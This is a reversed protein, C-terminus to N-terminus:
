LVLLSPISGGGLKRIGTMEGLQDYDIALWPMKMERIYTEWGFHSRDSSVFIVEFEPHAAAVRNYYEVLQPTFKRCPGCWHASYYLAVYKKKELESGDPRKIEGNRCRVLKPKLVELLPAGTSVVAAAAPARAAAQQSQLLANFELNQQAQAARRADIEIARQRAQDAEQNSILWVKSELAAILQASAGCDLLSKETPEDLPELVRRSSMEALISESSYGSRLMLGIEKNSLPSPAAMLASFLGAVLLWSLIRMGQCSCFIRWSNKAVPFFRPLLDRFGPKAAAAKAALEHAAEAQGTQGAFIASLWQRGATDSVQPRIFATSITLLMQPSLNTWDSIVSGYRTRLELQEPTARRVPGDYRVGHIDTM